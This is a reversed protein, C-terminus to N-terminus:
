RFKPDLPERAVELAKEWLGQLTPQTAQHVETFYSQGSAMTTAGIAVPTYHYFRAEDYHRVLEVFAKVAHPSAFCVVAPAATLQQIALSDFQKCTETRYLELDYVEIQHNRLYESVPFATDVPRPFWIVLDKRLECALLAAFDKGGQAPVMRARLNHALLHKYTEMGFTLFEVKQLQERSLPVKHLFAEVAKKSTFVVVDCPKPPLQPSIEVQRTLPLRLLWPEAKLWKQDSEWDEAPRTWVIRKM